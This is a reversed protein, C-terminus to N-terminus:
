KSKNILALKQKRTWGKIRAERKSANSRTKHKEAYRLKKAKFAATYKCGKGSFHEKMRRDLDSTIGTYLSKNKCELIYVFYPMFNAGGAPSSGAVVQNVTLHEVM